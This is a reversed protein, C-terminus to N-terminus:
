SKRISDIMKGAEQKIANAAGDAARYVESNKPMMLMAAAGAVMGAGMTAVFSKLKM